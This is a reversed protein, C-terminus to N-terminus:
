GPVQNGKQDLAEHQDRGKQEALAEGPLVQQFDRALSGAEEPNEQRDAVRGGGQEVQGPTQDPELVEDGVRDERFRRHNKDDDTHPKDTDEAGPMPEM